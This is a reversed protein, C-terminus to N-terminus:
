FQDRLILTTWIFEMVQVLANVLKSIKKTNYQTIALERGEIDWSPVIDVLILAIVRICSSTHLRPAM